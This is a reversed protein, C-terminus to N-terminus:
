SALERRRRALWASRMRQRDEESMGGWIGDRQNTAMAFELCQERVPCRQCLTIAARTEAVAEGTTGVPFFLDPNTDRCAADSRWRPDDRTSPRRFM